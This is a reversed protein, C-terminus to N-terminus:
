CTIFLWNFGASAPNLTKVPEHNNAITIDFTTVLTTVLGLLYGSLTLKTVM